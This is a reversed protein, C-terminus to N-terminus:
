SAMEFAEALQERMFERRRKRAEDEGLYNEVVVNLDARGQESAVAEIQSSLRKVADGYTRYWFRRGYQPTPTEDRLELGATEALRKFRKTIMDPSRHGSEAASSPFLYRNWDERQGLADLRRELPELGYLM